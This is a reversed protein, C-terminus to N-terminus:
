GKKLILFSKLFIINNLHIAMLDSITFLHHLRERLNNLFHPHSSSLM